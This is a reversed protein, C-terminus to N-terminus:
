LNSSQTVMIRNTKQSAKQAPLAAYHRATGWPLNIINCSTRPPYCCHSKFLTHSKSSWRQTPIHLAVRRL